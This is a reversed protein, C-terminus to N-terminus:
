PAAGDEPAAPPWRGRATGCCCSRSGGMRLFARDAPAPGACLGDARFTLEMSLMVASLGDGAMACLADRNCLNLGFGGVPALGARLALGVADANGCLAFSAGNARAKQLASLVSEERGFLALPFRWGVAQGDPSPAEWAGLPLLWGDAGPVLQEPRAARWCFPRSGPRFPPPASLPASPRAAADFGVAQPEGRLAELGSLAERRLANLASLPLVVRGSGATWKGPSFPTGGTKQLQAAAREPELPRTLAPEPAPGKAVATHIGDTVSLSAPRGDEVQLRWDVAVRPKERDYLRALRALTATDAAAVDEKRRSGLLERDRRGIFYGDTFGSRSFVNQLDELLSEEPSKGWALAAFVATAAAVYEPRKM